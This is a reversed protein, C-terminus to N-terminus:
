RIEYGALKSAKSRGIKRLRGDKVTFLATRKEFYDYYRPNFSSVPYGLDGEHIPLPPEIYVKAVRRYVPQSGDKLVEYFGEEAKDVGKLILNVYSTEGITLASVYERELRIASAIEDKKVLLEQTHADINMLVDYYERGNYTVTGSIYEERSWFPHGNYKSDYQLARRGRFLLANEQADSIYDSYDKDTRQQAVAPLSLILLILTYIRFPKM